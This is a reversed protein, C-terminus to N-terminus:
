RVNLQLRKAEKVIQRLRIRWLRALIFRPLLAETLLKPATKAKAFRGLFACVDAWLCYLIAVSARPEGKWRVVEEAPVLGKTLSYGYKAFRPEYKKAIYRYYNKCTSNALLERWCEFYKKNETGKPQELRKEPIRTGIFQAIEQQYRAPDKVYDEYILEYVHSLHKKDQEFVEHCHLWHEFLRHLSTTSVKWMKPTSMSVAVPHRKIVIFYSNPFAAQLFRTMLLNAPTKEVYITKNNDWFLHWDNRLRAVNEPTLLDSSETLHARPDFGYRGPGGLEFELPYVDQLKWGEMLQMKPLNKFSTCNELKGIDRDLLSTGSRNLGCIFVYKHNGQNEDQMIIDQFAQGQAIEAM